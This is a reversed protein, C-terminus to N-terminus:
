YVMTSAWSKQEWASKIGEMISSVASPAETDQLMKEIFDGVATGTTHDVWEYAPLLLSPTSNGDGWYHHNSSGCGGKSFGPAAESYWHYKGVKRFHKSIQTGIYLQDLPIIFLTTHLKLHQNLESSIPGSKTALDRESDSQKFKYASAKEEQM